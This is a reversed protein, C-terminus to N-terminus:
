RMNFTWFDLGDSSPSVSILLWFLRAITLLIQCSGFHDPLDKGLSKPFYTFRFIASWTSHPIHGSFELVNPFSGNELPASPTSAHDCVSDQLLSTLVSYESVTSWNCQCLSMSCLFSSPALTFVSCSSTPPFFCLFFELHFYLMWISALLM